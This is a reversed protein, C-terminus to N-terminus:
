KNEYMGSDQYDQCIVAAVTVISVTSKEVSGAASLTATTKRGSNFKGYLM